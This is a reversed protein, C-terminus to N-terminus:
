EKCFVHVSPDMKAVFKQFFSLRNIENTGEYIQVLKADRYIKEMGRDHRLGAKGVLDLALGANIMALDSCKVKAVSGYAAEMPINVSPSELVRDLLRAVWEENDTFRKAVETDLFRDALQKM